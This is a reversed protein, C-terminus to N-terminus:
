PIVLKTGIKVANGKIGNRARLAAVSVSFRQSISWLSDGSRVTYTRAPKAVPKTTKVPKAVHSPKKLAPPTSRVPTRAAEEKRILITRGPTVVDGKLDNAALLQKVTVDFKQAIKTLTDGQRVKYPMGMATSVPQAMTFQTVPASQRLLSLKAAFRAPVKLVYGAPIRARGSWVVPMLAYNVDKLEDLSITLQKAVYTVPLSQNLRLQALNLPADLELGPFYRQYNDYIEVAAMFEPYFNGSAFGFVRKIPNELIEVIDTTGMEQSKRMVGAVGHNYSTITLPWTGIRRYASALYRAAARTSEIPDRREDVLSSVTLYSKGTHRMFQWIGAAGVSSFAQYDFSSEIFPLRTIEVPLGFEQAFISEMIPLYRGSRKLAAITKERVGTQTRILDDDIVHKFKDSGGPVLKMAQFIKHELETAPISGKSLNLLARSVEAVRDETVKKRYRELAAPTSAMSESVQHFDLVKFIVQPYERHHIVVQDKGYKTFINIWFDVRLRLGPPTIFEPPHAAVSDDGQSRSAEVVPPASAGGDQAELRPCLFLFGTILLSLTTRRM